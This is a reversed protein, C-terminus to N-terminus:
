TGLVLWLGNSTALGFPTATTLAAGQTFLGAGSLTPNNPIPVSLASTGGSTPGGVFMGLDTSAHAFCGPMGLFTLDIGPTFALSGFGFFGVPSVAPLNTLNMVFAASGISPVGIGNLGIGYCGGGFATASAPTDAGHLALQQSDGAFVLTSTATVLDHVWTGGVNTWLVNGNQLEFVGRAGAAPFSALVAGTTADLKCVVGSTTAACWVNGDTAPALQATGDISASDHFTGLDAGSLSFRHVDDANAAGAVLLSGSLPLVSVPSTALSQTSFSYQYNGLPDFVEVADGPAGHATGGNTVLVLGNVFAMGRVDDLGGGPFTPYITALVVGGLDYRQVRDNAQESIWIESNVDIAAVQATNPLPFVSPDVLSGDVGSFAVLTHTTANTTMVFAQAATATAFALGALALRCGTRIPGLM